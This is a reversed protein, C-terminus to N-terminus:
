THQPWVGIESLQDLLSNKYGRRRAHAADPHRLGALEAAKAAPHTTASNRTSTESLSVKQGEPLSNLTYYGASTMVRAPLVLARSIPM